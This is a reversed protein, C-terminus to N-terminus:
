KQSTDYVLLGTDRHYKEQFVDQIAPVTTSQQRLNADVVEADTWTLTNPEARDIYLVGNLHDIEHQFVVALLGSAKIELDDWNEDKGTVVVKEHRDVRAQLGPLSLCGEYDTKTMESTAIIKPNFIVYESDGDSCVILRKSVDIQPAALGVGDEEYMTELMDEIFSPDVEEKIYPEAVKRLTPHGYKIVKLLAM